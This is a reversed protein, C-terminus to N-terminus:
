FSSEPSHHLFGTQGKRPNQNSLAKLPTTYFVRKGRELARYIAYEGILTKGSGTPACVVVSKGAALAAIASQQFDDLKFPFITKLDLSTPNLSEKV